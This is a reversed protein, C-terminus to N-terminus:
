ESTDFDANTPQRRGFWQSAPIGLHHDQLLVRGDREAALRDLAGIPGSWEAGQVFAIVLADNLKAKSEPSLSSLELPTLITNLM